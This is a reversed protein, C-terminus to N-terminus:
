SSAEKKKLNKILTAMGAVVGAKIAGANEGAQGFGKRYYGYLNQISKEVTVVAHAAARLKETVVSVDATVKRIDELALRMENLAPRLDEETRVIFRRMAYSTKKADLLYIINFATYVIFTIVAIVALVMFM